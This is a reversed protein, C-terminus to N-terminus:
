WRIDYHKRTSLLSEGNTRLINNCFVLWYNRRVKGTQSTRCSRVYAEDALAFLRNAEAKVQDLTWEGRKIAVLMPADHRLVHLEGEVMFEIGMKLLRILHAAAKGDYGLKEYMKKRREGLRGNFVGHTMRQMQSFAYGNFSKHSQKSVFLKRNDLIRQGEETVEIYHHKELWLMSMVNPNSNLLLRFMKRIEYVCSDWEEYQVIKQEFNGLGFYNEVPAICIGMIDKNDSATPETVPNLMTGHSISGMYGLLITDSPITINQQEPTMGKIKM